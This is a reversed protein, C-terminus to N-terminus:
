PISSCEGATWLRSRMFQIRPRAVDTVARAAGAACRSRSYGSVIEISTPYSPPATPDSSALTDSGSPRGSPAFVTRTSASAPSREILWPPVTISGNLSRHVDLSVGGPQPGSEGRQGTDRESGQRGREDIRGSQGGVKAEASQQDLAIVERPERETAVLD